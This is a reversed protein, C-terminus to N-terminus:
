DEYQELFNGMNGNRVYDTLFREAEEKTKPLKKKDASNEVVRLCDFVGNGCDQGVIHFAKGHGDQLCYFRKEM